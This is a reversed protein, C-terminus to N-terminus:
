ISEEKKFHLTVISHGPGFKVLDEGEGVTEAIQLEIIEVVQNRVPLYQIHLPEFYVTGRGEQHYKIERLLDAVRNGVMSSGGVDSYIHLSRTPEKVVSRFAVNLNTFKWSVRMSLFFWTVGFNDTQYRMYLLNEDKDRFDSLGKSPVTNEHYMMQLNVGAEWQSRWDTRIWGMKEGFVSNFAFHPLPDTVGPFRIRVVQSNDLVLDDNEWKFLACTHKNGHKEVTEYDRKFDQTQQQQIWRLSAKMFSVGDVISDDEKLEDLTMNRFKYIFTANPKKRVCSTRFVPRNYPVIHSLNVGTDPISISSLGVQWGEGPLRLPEPLRIKYWNAQNNPFEKRNAHSPLTVYM